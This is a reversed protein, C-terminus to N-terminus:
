AVWHNKITTKSGDHVEDFFPLDVEGVYDLIYLMCIIVAAVLLMLVFSGLTCFGECTAKKKKLRYM